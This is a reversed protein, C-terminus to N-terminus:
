GHKSRSLSDVCAVLADVMAQLQEPGADQHVPLNLIREAVWYSAPFTERPIASILTHYLSVVGFGCENMAFYLRDRSVNRVIVPFTQAVEQMRMEKWLPDIEGALPQLLDSLVETNRRRRAAIERLDFDWPSPADTTEVPIRELLSERGSNVLLMGGERVPLMKHLSFICADGLRGSVGAILDTLMAHAEDELVLAGHNKAKQVAEPYSPDVSGFYHIFVAVGIRYQRLQEELDDLDIRLRDDVRYFAYPLGLEAVPDFVGSGETASWGIYAPLLVVSGDSDAARLLAKFAARASSFMRHPRHYIGKQGALKEIRV